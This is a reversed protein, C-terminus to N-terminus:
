KITAGYGSYTSNPVFIGTTPDFQGGEFPDTGIIINEEAGDFGKNMGGFFVQWNFDASIKYVVNDKCLTGTPFTNAAKILGCNNSLAVDTYYLNKTVDITNITGGYVYFDGDTAMNVFTNNYMKLNSLNATKGQFIRFKNLLKNLDKSYFINNVLSINSFTATSSGLSIIYQQQTGSPFELLSNQIIFNEISRAAPAKSNYIYTLPQGSLAIIKTNDFIVTGFSNDNNQALLYAKSDGTTNMVNQADIECNHVLFIGDANESSIKIQKTPTIKSKVNSNNGILILNPFNATSTWNVDVSSDIFYLPNDITFEFDNRDVLKADPYLTNNITHGAIEFTEGQQYLAYYSEIVEGAEVQIKDVAWNVGKNVQVTLDKSNDATARSMASVDAKAPAKVTLTAKGETNPESLTALWGSPATVFANDGKITVKLTAPKGYGVVWTNNKLSSKDIACVLDQVVPLTLQQSGEKLVINLVGKAEDYVVSEFFSNGGTQTGDSVAMVDNGNADKVRQWNGDIKVEWYNNEIRFEPVDGAVPRGTDTGNIVWNGNEITVEPEQPASFDEGQKLTITEENSLLLTYVGNEEKVEQITLKGDILVKLANINENFASVQAELSEVRNKLEDIDNRLDDTNCGAIGLVALMFPMLFKFTKM